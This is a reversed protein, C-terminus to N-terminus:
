RPSIIERNGEKLIKVPFSEPLASAWEAVAGQYVVGSFRLDGVSDDSISLDAESYRAVDMVVDRLPENRYILVGDRWRSREGPNPSLTISLAEASERAAFTVQQGSAVRVQAPKNVESPTKPAVTVVGESVTVTVHDAIARVNFATGVATIDGSVSSVVFPRSPDKKVSFFAEGATLQIGRQVKTFRVSLRSKPGLWVRSGDALTIEIQEATRTSFDDPLPGRFITYRNMTILGLTIALLSAALLGAWRYKRVFRHAAPGALRSTTSPNKAASTARWTEVSLEGDYTDQSLEEVTPMALATSGPTNHWAQAVAEFAKRHCEDVDLWRLWAQLTDANPDNEDHIVVFWEAAERRQAETYPVDPHSAASM